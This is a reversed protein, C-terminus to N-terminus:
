RQATGSTRIRHIRSLLRDELSKALGALPPAIRELVDSAFAHILMDRAVEEGLGRSRLYFMAEQDLQGVTAGHTCKVDNAFIELQPKTDIRAEDSLLLNKNTQKADTKQADKRVRIKGNFVGKARGALIGKYLEHSACHPKAHDITTYNDVLQEGMALYLGDLTCESGEGDLVAIVNNRAIAGGFALSHSTFTSARNQYVHMTAVHYASESEEQIKLHDVVASEGLVIESVANTFYTNGSLAVYSEIISVQSNEEVIILNRPHSIFETEHDTSLFVLHIPNEIVVGKPVYIFAGDHMFATSLATFANAEFGAYKALHKKVFESDTQLASNLSGVKTGTPLSSLSSLEKAFRGNVFVVRSARLHDLAFRQLAKSPVRPQEQDTLHRFQTEVIPSVDTHRWEEDRTTPFGLEAFRTIAAKRVAHIEVSAEGNLSKEFADFHSLYWNKEKEFSRVMM